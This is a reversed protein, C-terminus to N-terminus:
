RSRAPSRSSGRGGRAAARRVDGSAERRLEGERASPSRREARCVGDRGRLAHPSRLELRRASRPLAAGAGVVRVRARATSLGRGAAGLGSARPRPVFLARHRRSIGHGAGRPRGAARERRGARTRRWGRGGDRLRGVPPDHAAGSRPPSGALRRRRPSHLTYRALGAAPSSAAQGLGPAAVVRSVGAPGVDTPAYLLRSIPGLNHLWASRALWHISDARILVEVEAGAEHLLAASELASQGAGVVAVRGGPLGPSTPPRRRTRSSSRRSRGFSRRAGPSRPFEPPSWSELQTSSRETTSCWVFDAECRMSECWAGGISTRRSPARSGSETRSSTRSRCRAPCGSEFRARTTM